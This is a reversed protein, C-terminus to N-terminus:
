NESKTRSKILDQWFPMWLQQYDTPRKNEFKEAHYNLLDSNIADLGPVFLIPLNLWKLSAAWPTEVVVPFSNQYLVEWLRHTDFGNGECVFIFKYRRVLKFYESTSRFGSQVDFFELSLAEELIRQRVQNTPSMPPLLVKNTIEFKEIPKHLSKFGSRALKLNEIGIPITKFRSDTCTTLNQGFFAGIEIPFNPKISYNADSNGSVITKGELYDGFIAVFENLLHGDIFISDSTIVKMKIRKSNLNSQTIQVDCLSAFNDGSVYPKNTLMRLFYKQLGKTVWIARRKWENQIIEFM